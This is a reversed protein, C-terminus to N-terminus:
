DLRAPLGFREFDALARGPTALPQAPWRAFAARDPLDITRTVFATIERIRGGDLTMVDLAFPLFRGADEDWSYVASAPQGNVRTPLHRWRWQGSLPGVELFHTVERLGGYWSALPPMSWAVDATLMSVVAGVDGRQMAEAYGEVIERLRRNGLTRLTAQQSREPLREEAAARARQLASNVSAVTTELTEAAERASFGLVDRLILAARQLPPLHQLAAVFALEVSERQEYRAEPAARGDEVGLQEDPYPEIWVSEVLPEGPGERPDSAAAHEVPLVRKSRRALTDLCVNTAIRYAWSRLSSRREFRRLSRWARLLTEQLADDADHVSGLMRYCHAHLEGRLPEILARFADEDGAGARELLRGEGGPGVGAGSM